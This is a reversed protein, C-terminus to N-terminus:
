IGVVGRGTSWGNEGHGGLVGLVRVGVIGVLVGTRGRGRGGLTLGVILLLLRGERRLM